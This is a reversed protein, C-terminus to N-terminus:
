IMGTVTNKWLQLSSHLSKVLEPTSLLSIEMSDGCGDGYKRCVITISTPSWMLAFQGNSPRSDVCGSDSYVDVNEIMKPFEPSFRLTLQEFKLELTIEYYISDEEEQFKESILSFM